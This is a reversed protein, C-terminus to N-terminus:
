QPAIERFGPIASVTITIRSSGPGGSGTCSLTYTKTTTPSVQRSGSTPVSGVGQDISCSDFGATTWSLTSSDGPNIATPSASFSLIDASVSVTNSCNADKQKNGSNVGVSGSKTGASSYTVQVPNGTQNNLPADGSWTFTYEGTGGSAIATWTVPQGAQISAPSASCSVILETQACGDGSGTVGYNAGRFHIWGVVDSGWAWGDWNCSTASVAYNSGALHIWGDWGGSQAGGGALVKIWGSVTGNEQNINPKCPAQPCGSSENFSIWGIHESWAYGEMDGNPKVNVGYDASACSNTNTCNFSIWGITESWAWGSLNNAAGAESKSASSLLFLGAVLLAAFLFFFKKRYM